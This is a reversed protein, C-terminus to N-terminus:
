CVAKNQLNIENYAISLGSFTNANLYRIQKERSLYYLYNSSGKRQFALFIVIAYERFRLYFYLMYRPGGTNTSVEKPVTVGPSAAALTTSRTSSTSCRGRSSSSTICM